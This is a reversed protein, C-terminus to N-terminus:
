MASKSSNRTAGTPTRSVRVKVVRASRVGAGELLLDGRAVGGGDRVGLVIQEEAEIQRVPDREGGGREGFPV